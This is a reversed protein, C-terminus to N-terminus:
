KDWAITYDAPASGSNLLQVTKKATAGVAVAGFQLDGRVCLRPRPPRAHLWLELPAEQVTSVSECAFKITDHYEQGAASNSTNFVVQLAHVVLILLQLWPTLFM